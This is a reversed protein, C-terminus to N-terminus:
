CLKLSFFFKSNDPQNKEFFPENFIAGLNERSTAELILHNVTTEVSLDNSLKKQVSALARSANESVHDTAPEDKFSEGSIGQIERAKRETIIWTQLPDHKLVDIITMILGKNVRLVRLTHECCRRFVGETKTAGFGDVIDPTLRFPVTEPIRLTKGHDFAIGLDIQVVDGTSKDVLTNSLHRDGLGLIHGVISTTATSRTFNLRSEYWEQPCKKKEMFWFRMAPRVHEMEELYRRRREEISTSSTPSMFNRLKAFNWDPPENYKMHMPKLIEMLSLTNEVFQLMGTNPALPIVNYTRFNLERKRCEPDRSLVENALQFVQEMVADQRVDDGGKFLQTYARGKEDYCKTIKPAHIGGALKFISDYHDICNMDAASYRLTKDVPLSLTSVPISLHSLNILKFRNPIKHASGEGRRQREREAKTDYLAWEQYAQHAKLLQEFIEIKSEIKSIHRLVTDAAKSRSLDRPSLSSGQRSSSQTSLGSRSQNEMRSGRQLLLIQFITHFPHEACMSAVLQSLLSQFESEPDQSLRACIQNSARLFKYTPVKKVYPKLDKNLEQHDSQDFWLSVFRFILDDHKDVYALSNLYMRLAASRYQNELQLLSQLSKEDEKHLQKKWLLARQGEVDKKAIPKATEIENNLRDTSKTLRDIEGSDLLERYQKDAFKAYAFSVQGTEQFDKELDLQQIAKEFYHRIIEAPPRLRAEATWEGLRSLYVASLCSSAESAQLTQLTSLALSQEGKAWLVEALEESGQSVISPSIDHSSDDYAIIVNLSSQLHGSLRAEQSTRIRIQLEIDKAQRLFGKRIDFGSEVPDNFETQLLSRRATAVREFLQFDGDSPLSLLYNAATFASDDSKKMDLLSSIDNLALATGIMDVDLTEKEVISTVLEQFQESIYENVKRVQVNYDREVKYNQLAAYLRTSSDSRLSSVVPLDWTSSRWALEYPLTSLSEPIDLNREKSKSCSQLLTQAIKRLGFSSLHKSVFPIEQIFEDSTKRSGELLAGHLSFASEWRGEHRDRQLLSFRADRPVLSYFTDPEPACTYLKEIVGRVDNDELPSFNLALGNEKGIELFLFAPASMKLQTARRALELWSVDLWKDSGLPDNGPRIKRRLYVILNIIRKIVVESASPSRLVTDFHESVTKKLRNTRIDSLLCSYLLRPLMEAAFDDNQEFLPVFQTYFTCDKMRLHTLLKLFHVTWGAHNNDLAKLGPFEFLHGTSFNYLDYSRRISKDGILVACQGLLDSVLSRDSQLDTIPEYSCAKQICDILCFMFNLDSANLRSIALALVEQIIRREPHTTFDDEGKEEESNDSSPFSPSSSDLYELRGRRLNPLTVIGSNKRLLELYLKCQEASPCSKMRHSSSLLSYLILGTDQRNGFLCSQNFNKILELSPAYTLSRQVFRIDKSWIESGISHKEPWCLIIRKCLGDLPSGRAKVVHDFLWRKFKKSLDRDTEDTLPSEEVSKVAKVVAIILNCLTQEDSKDMSSILVKGVVWRIFPFLPRFMRVNPILPTLGRLLLSLIPLSESVASHSLAIFISLACLGRIHDSVFKSHSLYALTLRILEYIKAPKKFFPCLIIGGAVRVGRYAVLLSYFPLPPEVPYCLRLRSTLVEFVNRTEDEGKMDDVIFSFSEPRVHASTTLSFLIRGAEIRTIEKDVDCRKILAEVPKDFFSTDSVSETPSLTAFKRALIEAVIRPFCLRLAEKQTLGASQACRALAELQGNLYFHAGAGLLHAQTIEAKRADKLNTGIFKDSLYLPTDNKIGREFAIHAAYIEYLRGMDSFGLSQTALQMQEQLIKHHLVDDSNEQPRTLVEVLKCYARSRLEESTILINVLCLSETLQFELTKLESKLIATLKLWYSVGSEKISYLLEPFRSSAFIVSHRIRYDNDRLSRLLLDLPLDDNPSDGNQSDMQSDSYHPSLSWSQQLPDLQLYDDLFLNFERQVEWSRANEQVIQNAFYQCLERATSGILKGTEPNWDEWSRLSIRLMQIVFKRVSDNQSYSYSSLYNDGMAQLIRNIEVSGMKMLGGILCDVVPLGIAILEDGLCNELITSIIPLEKVEQNTGTSDKFCIGSILARTCLSVAMITESQYGSEGLGNMKTKKQIVGDSIRFDDKEHIDSDVIMEEEDDGFDITTRSPQTHTISPENAKGQTPPRPNSALSYIISECITLFDNLRPKIQISNTSWVKMVFINRDISSKQSSDDRLSPPEWLLGSADGPPLLRSELSTMHNSPLQLIIPEFCLYLSTREPATWKPSEIMCNIINWCRGIAKQLSLDPSLNSMRLSAEFLISVLIINISMKAQSFSASSIYSSPDDDSECIKGLLRELSHLLIDSVQIQLQSPPLLRAGSLVSERLCPADSPDLNLSVRSSDENTKLSSSPRYLTSLRIHQTSNRYFIAETTSCEPLVATLSNPWNNRPLKSVTLLLQNLCEPNFGAPITRRFRKSHGDPLSKDLSVTRDVALWINSLWALAKGELADSSMKLDNSALDLCRSLLLCVSDFPYSPGHAHLDVLFNHVGDRTVHTPLLNKKLICYAAYCASRCCAQQAVKRISFLWFHEWECFDVDGKALYPVTRKTSITKNRSSLNSMLIFVWDLVVSDNSSLLDSATKFIQSQISSSLDNWYRDVVLALIQIRHVVSQTPNDPRIHQLFLEMDSSVKRRKQPSLLEKADFRGSQNTVWRLASAALGLLSWSMLQNHELLPDGGKGSVCAWTQTGLHSARTTQLDDGLAISSLSLPELSTRGEKDSAVLYLIKKILKGTDYTPGGSVNGSNTEPTETISPLLYTLCLVIQEKLGPSRTPWLKILLDILSPAAQRLHLSKNLELERLVILLSSTFHIHASTENLFKQFIRQFNYLLNKSYKLNISPVDLVISLLQASDVILPSAFLSSTSDPNEDTWRLKSDDFKGNPRLTLSSPIKQDLITAFCFAVLELALDPAVHELHPRYLLLHRLARICDSAIPVIIRRDYSLVLDITRRIVMRMVKQRLTSASQHVCKRILGTVSMLRNLNASKSGEDRASASKKLFSSRELEASEFLSRLVNKWTSEKSFELNSPNSVLACLRELGKTRDSITSSTIQLLADEVPSSDTISPHRDTKKFSFFERVRPM